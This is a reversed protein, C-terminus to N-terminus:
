RSAPASPAGTCRCSPAGAAGPRRAARSDQSSGRRRAAARADQAASRATERASARARRERKDSEGVAMWGSSRRRCRSPRRPKGCAGRAARSRPAPSGDASREAPSRAAARKARRRAYSRPRRRARAVASASSAGANPRLEHRSSAAASCTSDDPCPGGSTSSCPHAICEPTQPLGRPSARALPMADVRDIQRPVAEARRSRRERDVADHASSSAANAASREGSTTTPQDSPPCIASAHASACGSRIARRTSTAVVGRKAAPSPQLRAIDACVSAVSRRRARLRAPLAVTSRKRVSCIRPLSCPCQPARRAADRARRARRVTAAYARRSASAASDVISRRAATRRMACRGREDNGTVRSVSAGAAAPRHSASPSASRGVERRDVAGRM